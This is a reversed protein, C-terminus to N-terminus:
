KDLFRNLKVLTDTLSKLLDKNMTITNNVGNGSGPSNSVNSIFVGEKKLFISPDVELKKSITQIDKLTPNKDGSEIKMYTNVSMNLLNAMEDRSLQKYEQLIRIHLGTEM